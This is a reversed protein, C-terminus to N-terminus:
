RWDVTLFYYGRFCYGRYSTILLLMRLLLLMMTLLAAAAAAYHSFDLYRLKDSWAYSVPQSSYKQLAGYIKFRALDPLTLITLIWWIIKEM